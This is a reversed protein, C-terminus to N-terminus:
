HHQHWDTDSYAGGAAETLLSGVWQMILCGEM